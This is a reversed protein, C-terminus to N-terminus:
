SYAEKILKHIYFDKTIGNNCLKVSSYGSKMIKPKLYKSSRKSYIGDKTILYNPFNDVPIGNEPCVSNNDKEVYKWIFGGCTKRKGKCVDSIHRDNAGSKSSAELISNYTAIYENHLSYQEVQKPHPKYLQTRVAHQTNEMPTTWELNYSNNNQKDGDIHNVHIKSSDDNPHFANAVLTHIAVTNKCNLAGNYLCTAKYGNRVHQKLLRNRKISHIEGTNSVLYLHSYKEIHVNKWEM